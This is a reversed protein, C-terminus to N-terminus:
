LYGGGIRFTGGYIDDSLLVHDGPELIGFVSMNAAQGSSFAFGALGGELIAMTRELEERTPNKLRTYTYGTSVDFDRHMFTASQFIPFSVAGTIPDCGLAGHVVKSDFHLNDKTDFSDYFNEEIM